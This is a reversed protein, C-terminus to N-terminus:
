KFSLNLENDKYGVKIEGSSRGGKLLLRAIEDILVRDVTRRLARAGYEDSYGEKLIFEKAKKDVKLAFGKDFLNKSVEALLLNLIKSLDSKTLKNFVVVDDFRNLLEPRLINKLNDTLRKEVLGADGKKIDKVVFGIEGRSILESGLNSTLIVISHTFDFARGRADVLTGDEMIQLLINLVDPHAKEIEDFLVVTYPNRSIKETLEGGENYGVYGPPAGVLRSVTHRESFDSMDLKILGNEGFVSKSLVRALETKGVGTHGLFLFSGIPRKASRLGLSSRILSSAVSSVAKGQGVIKKSLAEELNFFLKETVDPAEVLPVNIEKGLASSIYPTKLELNERDFSFGSLGKEISGIKRKLAVALDLERKSIAKNLESTFLFKKRKLTGYKKPLMNKDMVLFSCAKDLLDIAKQPFYKGKIYKESKEYVENLSSESIKVAHFREFDLAKEKLISLTTKKDSEKVRVISFNKLIDEDESIYKQFSALSTSAIIQFGSYLIDSKFLNLAFPPFFGPGGPMFVQHFDSFFLVLNGASLVEDHLASLGAEIGERGMVGSLFSNIDFDIVSINILQSPVEFNSMKQALLKVLSRKGVGSEGILLPNAKKRQLLISIVDTLEEREVQNGIVGDEYLLNLNTGFADLIPTKRFGRVSKKLIKPYTGSTVVKKQAIKYDKSGSLKLLALTLHETGVYQHRMQFSEVFAQEIVDSLNVKHNKQLSVREPGSLLISGFGGSEIISSALDQAHVLNNNSSLFSELAKKARFTLKDTVM